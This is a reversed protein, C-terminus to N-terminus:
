PKQLKFGEKAKKYNDRRNIDISNNSITIKTFEEEYERIFWLRFKEIGAIIFKDDYMKRYFFSVDAFRGKVGKPKIYNEDLLHKFLIFGNNCFIDQHKQNIEFSINKINDQPNLNNLEKVISFNEEQKKKNEEQKNNQKEKDKKKQKDRSHISISCDFNSCDFDAANCISLFDINYKLCCYQIEGVTLNYLYHTIIILNYETSLSKDFIPSQFLLKNYEPDKFFLNLERLEYLYFRIKDNKGNSSVLLNKNLEKSFPEIFEDELDIDINILAISLLRNRNKLLEDISFWEESEIFIESLATYLKKFAKTKM